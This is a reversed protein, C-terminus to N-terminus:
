FSVLKESRAHKKLPLGHPLMTPSEVKLEGWLEIDNSWM